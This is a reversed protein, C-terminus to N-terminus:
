GCEMQRILTFKLEGQKEYIILVNLREKISETVTVCLYTDYAYQLIKHEQSQIQM